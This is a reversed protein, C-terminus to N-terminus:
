KFDHGPGKLILTIINALCNIQISGVKNCLVILIKMSYLRKQELYLVSTSTLSYIIVITKPTSRIPKSITFFNTSVKCNLFM